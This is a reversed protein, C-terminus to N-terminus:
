VVGAVVAASLPAVNRTVTVLEAPEATLLV